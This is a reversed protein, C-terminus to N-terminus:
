SRQSDGLFVRHYEDESIHTRILLMVQDSLQEIESANLRRALLEAFEPRGLLRLFTVISRRDQEESLGFVISSADPFSSTM